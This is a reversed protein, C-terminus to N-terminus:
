SARSGLYERRAPERAIWEQLESRRWRILNAVRIPKPLEGNNSTRRVTRASLRMTRMAGRTWATRESIALLQAVEEVRLLPLPQQQSCM